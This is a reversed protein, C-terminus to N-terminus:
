ATNTYYVYYKKLCSFCFSECCEENGCTYTNKLIYIKKCQHCNILSVDNASKKERKSRRVCTDTEQININNFDQDHSRKRNLFSESENKSNKM